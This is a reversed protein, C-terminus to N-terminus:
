KAATCPLVCEVLNSRRQHAVKRLPFTPTRWCLADSNERLRDDEDRFSNTYSNTNGPLCYPDNATICTKFSAKGPISLALKNEEQNSSCDMRSSDAARPKKQLRLTRPFCSPQHEPEQISLIKYQCNDGEEKLSSIGYGPTKLIDDQMSRISLATGTNLVNGESNRLTKIVETKHYCNHSMQSGCDSSCTLSHREKMIPKESIYDSYDSDSGPETSLSRQQIRRSCNFLSFSPKRVKTGNVAPACLLRIEVNCGLILQLSSAISKWSKEAKSVSDPHHFQLEAVALGQNFQLSFLKGQKRLFKKLSNSQGETARMWISELAGKCEENTGVQHSKNDDCSRTVPHKLSEGPSITGCSEDDKDHSSRLSLKSDNVDLSSSEVSSLQLLAVTLWTTQHKSMRLQKETESLIKLAHSLKQMDAESAHREFFRRRAESSGEQCKGALIDMILNALQSILQMPDIKSRMLERAMIVTNSHDSSLALDLLNLLEDDSVTGILEYALSMTIRNGLLSLQDLMMEADRLSGNSKAAILDLAVQDFDLAEEVCIKRLRSAIDADKINPFHYKQSRSVASRPLKDLDPTIMVFIVHQSINGLSSLITTWTEGHLLQCEDFIFIKFRSSSPPVFANKMLSRIRDTRNIRVSDVEKVDRTRGSFFLICERCLGCPKHEELSLCNLAAAFIRSASTKGTGRPGHFLYFSTVMGRCVASLLSRVVVDQGVLEDFCKPRFKQSLSRPTESYSTVQSGSCKRHRHGYTTEGVDRSLLPYDELDSSPNSERSRPTRSWCYSIGCGSHNHDIFHVEQHAFLSACNNSVMDCVSPCGSSVRSAVDSGAGYLKAENRYRPKWTSASQENGEMSLSEVIPGSCSDVDEMPDSSPLICNVDLEKDRYNSCYRGGRSDNGHVEKGNSQFNDLREVQKVRTPNGTSEVMGFNQSHILKSNDLGCHMEELDDKEEGIWNFGLSKSGLLGNHDFDGEKCSNEFRLSIGNTSNTEWNVTEPLASFKSMSNTAPDRLSRVRRLAILTRSIPIDVSHRRGDTM